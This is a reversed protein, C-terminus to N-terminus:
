QFASIQPLELVRRKSVSESPEATKKTMGDIPTRTWRQRARRVMVRDAIVCVRYSHKGFIGGMGRARKM